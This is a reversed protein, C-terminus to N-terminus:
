ADLKVNGNSSTLRLAITPGESAFGSAAISRIARSSPTLLPSYLPKPSLRKLAVARSHGLGLDGSLDFSISRSRVLGGSIAWIV